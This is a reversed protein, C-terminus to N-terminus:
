CIRRSQIPVDWDLAEFLPNIFGLGAQAELYHDEVVHQFLAPSVGFEPTVEKIAEFRYAKGAVVDLAEFSETM